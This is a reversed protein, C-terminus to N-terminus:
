LLTYLDKPNMLYKMCEEPSMYPADNRFKINRFPSKNSNSDILDLLYNVVNAAAEPISYKGYRRNNIRVCYGNNIYLVYLYSKNKIKEMNMLISNDIKSIWICTYKSYVRQSKPINFQLYDKDLQYMNPYLCKKDFNPLTQIDELYYGFDFWRPDITIGLAGYYQYDKDFKNYCRNIMDNWSRYFNIVPPQSVVGNYHGIYGVRAVIPVSKDRVRGKRISEYSAIHTNNTNLFKIQFYHKHPNNNLKDGNIYKEVIFDGFNNSHFIKGIIFKYPIKDNEM